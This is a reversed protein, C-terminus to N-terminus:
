QRVLAALFKGFWLDWKLKSKQLEVHSQANHWLVQKWWCHLICDDRDGCQFSICETDHSSGSGKVIDSPRRGKLRVM